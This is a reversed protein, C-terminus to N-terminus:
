KKKAKEKKKKSTQVYKKVNRSSGFGIYGTVENIMRDNKGMM